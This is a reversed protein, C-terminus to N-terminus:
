FGPATYERVLDGLGNASKRGTSRLADLSCGGRHFHRRNGGFVRRRYGQYQGLKGHCLWMEELGRNMSYNECLTQQRRAVIKPLGKEDVM